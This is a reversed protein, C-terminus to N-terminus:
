EHKIETAFLTKLKKTDDTDWNEPNTVQLWGDIYGNPAYTHGYGLPPLIATAMDLLLQVFTVIPYWTLEPSVDPGRQGILWDPQKFASKLDFFVIPDSAHQLYVIRLKGWKAGKINLHNIQSTFRVISGDSALPLWAPSDPQRTDTIQRWLKNAFPPGAWLAGNIPDTILDITNVSQESGLSGLSLGNLYLKPRADKPLKTWHSYIASFLAKASKASREPEALLSLWSALYSYQMAVTAIDGNHIYEIPNAAMPDLWGTGTPNAIILIKRSFANVRLMEQLALQARAEPTNASNLGVYIRLPQMATQNSFASIEAQTPGSVIFKRGLRGLGKWKLLSNPSGTAANINPAKIGDDFIQDLKQYSADMVRLVSRALVGNILNVAIFTIAIIGIVQALRRPLIKMLQRNAYSTLNYIYQSVLILVFALVAGILAVIFANGSVLLEMGMLSRISNQWAVSQWLGYALIMAVILTSVIQLVRLTQGKAPPLELFRWLWYIFIGSGYGLAFCIGGLVGQFLFGRPILSPTLSLAFLLGGILLGIFSFNQLKNSFWTIVKM